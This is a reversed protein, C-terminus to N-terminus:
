VWYDKISLLGPDILAGPLNGRGPWDPFWGRSAADFAIIDALGLLFLLVAIASFSQIKSLLLANKFTNGTQDEKFSDLVKQAEPPSVVNTSTAFTDFVARLALPNCKQNGFVYAEYTLYGRQALFSGDNPGEKALQSVSKPNNVVQNLDALSIDEPYGCLPSINLMTGSKDTPGLGKLKSIARVNDYMKPFQSRAIGAGGSAGFFGCHSSEELARM